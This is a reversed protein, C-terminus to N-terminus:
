VEAGALTFTIPVRVRSVTGPQFRWRKFANAAANDLISSGTSQAVEVDTVRGSSRHVTMLMVGNGTIRNRRAEYPYDPRPASIAVTKASSISTTGTFAGVARPRAIPAVPRASSPKKPAPAVEEESFEPPSGPTASAELPEPEEPPPPPQVPQQAPAEFIADVTGNTDQGISIPSEDPQLEVYFVAGVHLAVAVVAAAIATWKSPTRYLAPPPVVPKRPAVNGISPRGRVMDNSAWRLPIEITKSQMNNVRQNHSDCFTAHIEVKILVKSRDSEYNRDILEQGIGPPM